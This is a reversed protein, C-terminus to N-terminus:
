QKPRWHIALVCQRDHVGTTVAKVTAGANRDVFRSVETEMIRRVADPWQEFRQGGAKEHEQLPVNIYTVNCGALDLTVIQERQDRMAPDIMTHPTDALEAQRPLECSTM